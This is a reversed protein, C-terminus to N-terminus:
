ADIVSQDLTFDTSSSSTWERARQVPSDDTFYAPREQLDIAAAERYANLADQQVAAKMKLDRTLPMCLWAALDLIFASVVLPSWLSYDIVDKVYEIPISPADGTYLIEGGQYAWDYQGIPDDSSGVRVVRLCDVPVAYYASFDVTPARDAILTAVGQITAFNWNNNSLFAQRRQNIARRAVKTPADNDDDLNLVPPLGLQMLAESVIGVESTLVSM